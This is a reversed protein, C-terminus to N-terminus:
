INIIMKIGTVLGLHNHVQNNYLLNLILPQCHSISNYLILAEFVGQNHTVSLKLEAIADPYISM